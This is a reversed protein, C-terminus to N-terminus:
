SHECFIKVDYINSQTRFVGKYRKNSNPKTVLDQSSVMIEQWKTMLWFLVLPKM